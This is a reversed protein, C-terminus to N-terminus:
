AVKKRWPIQQYQLNSVFNVLDTRGYVKHRRAGYLITPCGFYNSWYSVAEDADSRCDIVRDKVVIIGFDIGQERIISYQILTENRIYLVM